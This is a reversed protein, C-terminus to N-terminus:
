RYKEELYRYYDEETAGQALGILSRVEPSLTESDRAEELKRMARLTDELLGSLTKGHKRAWEKGFDVLEEEVSLTLKRHM